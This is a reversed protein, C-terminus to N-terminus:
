GNLESGFCRRGDIRFARNDDFQKLGAPDIVVPQDEIVEMACIAPAANDASARVTASGERLGVVFGNGYVAAITPDSSQWRLKEPAAGSAELRRVGGLLVTATQDKLSVQALAASCIMGLLLALGILRKTNRGMHSRMEEIM